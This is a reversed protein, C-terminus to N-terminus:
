FFIDYFSDFDNAGTFNTTNTAHLVCVADLLSFHLWSMPVTYSWGLNLPLTACFVRGSLDVYTVFSSVIIFKYLLTFVHPQKM